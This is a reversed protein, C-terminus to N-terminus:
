SVPSVVALSVRSSVSSKYNDVYQEIVDSTIGDVLMEKDIPVRPGTLFAKHFEPTESLKGLDNNRLAEAFDATGYGAEKFVSSVKGGLNESVGSSVFTMFHGGKDHGLAFIKYQGDVTALEEISVDGGQLDVQNESMAGITYKDM